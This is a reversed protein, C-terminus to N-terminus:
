RRRSRALALRRSMRRSVALWLTLGCVMLTMSGPEPTAFAVAGSYPTWNTDQRFTGVGGAGNDGYNSATQTNWYATDPLPNSGITPATMSLGFNLSEFPGPTGIPQAGWTNTNFAIGYILQDPVLLNNLNFTVEFAMGNYCNGDAARWATGCGPSAEPRWPIFFTQTVSAILSGPQKTGSSNDVNYLNLTIPHYWGPDTSGHTSALAWDSMLATVSWLGRSTGPDFQILDGFEATQTAQYGLSPVNPPLPDPISNYLLSGALVPQAGISFAISIGFSLLHKRM